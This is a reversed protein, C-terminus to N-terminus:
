LFISIETLNLKSGFLKVQNLYSLLTFHHYRELFSARLHQNIWKTKKENKKILRLTQTESLDFNTTPIISKFGNPYLSFSLITPICFAWNSAMEFSILISKSYRSRGILLSICYKFSLLTSRAENIELSLIKLLAVGTTNTFAASSYRTDSFPAEREILVKFFICVIPISLPSLLSTWFFRILFYWTLGWIIYEEFIFLRTAKTSVSRTSAIEIGSM